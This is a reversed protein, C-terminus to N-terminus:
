KRNVEIDYIPSILVHENQIGRILSFSCRKMYKMAMLILKEIMQKSMILM